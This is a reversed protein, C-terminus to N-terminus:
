AAKARRRRRSTASCIPSSRIPRRYTVTPQAGPRLSQDAADRRCRHVPLHGAAVAPEAGDAPPLGGQRLRYREYNFFFFAKDRGNFLGPIVIPGGVRFGYQNLKVIDKPAKGTSPDPPLDRNNFWYNANLAPNRLYEYVSGSFTNSGSRSRYMIQVSGGGVGSADGSATAVTVEEVQDQLPKIAVQFGDNTKAGNDQINIGDLTVNLASQPLGNFTTDRNVGTTMAGPMFAVFDMANRSVLPIQSIQKLAMTTSVTSTQAQVVETGGTVTVTEEMQGVELTAKVTAPVGVEFKVNELVATKFGSLTVTVTYTAASMAPITFSGREDTVAEFTTGTAVNKAVVAAGPITGGSADVVTGSLSTADQARAPAAVLALLVSLTVAIRSTKRLTM